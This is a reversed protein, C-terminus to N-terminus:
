KLKVSASKLDALTDAYENSPIAIAKKSKVSVAKAKKEKAM